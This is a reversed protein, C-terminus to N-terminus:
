GDLEPRHITLCREPDDWIRTSLGGDQEWRIDATVERPGYLRAEETVTWVVTNNYIYQDGEQLYQVQIQETTIKTRAM